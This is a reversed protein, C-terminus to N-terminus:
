TIKSYIVKQTQEKKYPSTREWFTLALADPGDPSKGYQKRMEEKPMIMIRGRGDRKYKIMSLDKMRRKTIENEIIEGGALIWERLRWYCEARKNAFKDQDDAHLNWNQCTM